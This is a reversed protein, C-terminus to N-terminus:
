LNPFHEPYPLLFLLGIIFYQIYIAACVKRVSSDHHSFVTLLPHVRRSHTKILKYFYVIGLLIYIYVATDSYGTIKVTTYYIRM